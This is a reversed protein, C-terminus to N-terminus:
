LLRNMERLRVAIIRLLDLSFYPTHHVMYLFKGEDIPLVECDSRAKANASREAQDILAMEGFIEGKGLTTLVREQLTLDVEGSKVVYMCRGVEGIEFITAGASYTEVNDSAEFFQLLDVETEVAM